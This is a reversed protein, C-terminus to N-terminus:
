WNDPNNNDCHDPPKFLLTHTFATCTDMDGRPLRSDDM